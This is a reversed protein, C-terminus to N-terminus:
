YYITLVAHYLNDASYTRDFSCYPLNLLNEPIKTDPDKDMVTLTYSKAHLYPLNDAHNSEIRNLQYDICPYNRRINSPPEFYCNRSGLVDCLIEHLMERTKTM